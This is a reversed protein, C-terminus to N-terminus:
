GRGIMGSADMAAKYSITFHVQRHGCVSCVVLGDLAPMPLEPPLKATDLHGSHGCADCYATISFKDPPFDALTNFAPMLAGCIL